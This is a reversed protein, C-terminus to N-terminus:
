QKHENEDNEAGELGPLSSPLPRELSGGSPEEGGFHGESRQIERNMAMMMGKSSVIPRKRLLDLLICGHFNVHFGFFVLNLLFMIMKWYRTLNPAQKTHKHSGFNSGFGVHFLFGLSFDDELSGYKRAEMNIKGPQQSAELAGFLLHKGEFRTSCITSSRRSM